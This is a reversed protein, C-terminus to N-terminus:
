RIGVMNTPNAASIANAGFVTAGGTGILSPLYVLGASIALLVIPQSLPVQTPNDKHSKFKLMGMLAFAIGAVYSVSTILKAVMSLSNRINDAINGLNQGGAGAFVLTTCTLLTILLTLKLLSKNHM